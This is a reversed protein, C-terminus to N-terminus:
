EIGIYRLRRFSLFQDFEVLVQLNLILSFDTFERHKHHSKELDLEAFCFHVREESMNLCVWM